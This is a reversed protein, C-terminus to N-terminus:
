KNVPKRFLEDELPINLECTDIAFKLQLQGNVYSELQFPLMFNDMLRFDSFRGEADFSQGQSEIKTRLKLVLFNVSDIYYNVVTSDKFTLKINYVPTGNMDEKGVLEVITGNKAPDTFPNSWVGYPDRLDEKISSKVLDENLDQPETSGLMPNVMWGSQGSISYIMKSGQIEMEMRSQDPRKEMSTVSFEVGAQYLKGSMKITQVAKSNKYGITTLFKALIEDSKMDQACLTGLFLLTLCLTLLNKM